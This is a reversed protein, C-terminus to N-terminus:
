TFFGILSLLVLVGFRGLTASSQLFSSCGSLKKTNDQSCSFPWRCFAAEPTGPCGHEAVILNGFATVMERYTHRFGISWTEVTEQDGARYLM